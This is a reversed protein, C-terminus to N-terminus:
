QHKRTQAVFEEYAASSCGVQSFDLTLICVQLEPCGLEAGLGQTVQGSQEETRSTSCHGWVPIACLCSNVILADAPFCPGM